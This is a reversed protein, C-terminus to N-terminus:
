SLNITELEHAPYFTSEIKAQNSTLGSLDPRSDPLRMQSLSIAPLLTPQSHRSILRENTERQLLKIDQEPRRRDVSPLAPPFLSSIRSALSRWM